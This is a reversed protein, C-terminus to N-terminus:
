FGSMVHVMLDQNTRTGPDKYHNIFYDRYLQPNYEMGSMYLVAPSAQRTLSEGDRWGHVRTNKDEGTSKWNPMLSFGDFFMHKKM